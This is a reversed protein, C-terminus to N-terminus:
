NKNAKHISLDITQYVTYQIHTSYKVRPGDLMIKEHIKSIEENLEHIQSFILHLFVHITDKGYYCKSILENNNSKNSINSNNKILEKLTLNKSILFPLQFAPPVPM